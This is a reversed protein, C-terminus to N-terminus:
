LTVLRGSGTDRKWGEPVRAYTPWMAGGLQAGHFDAKELNAEALSAHLLIVSTLNAETLDAQMLDAGTLNARTLDARRFDARWLDAGTLNARALRAGTLNAGTFNRATFVLAGAAFLAAGLTLLRGRANDVATAYGSARVSGVDHRALWDAAPVFLAWAIALGLVVAAIGGM